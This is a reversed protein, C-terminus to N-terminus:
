RTCLLRTRPTRRAMMNRSSKSNSIRLSSSKYFILPSNCWGLLVMCPTMSSVDSTKMLHNTMSASTSTIVYTGHHLTIASTTTHGKILRKTTVMIPGMLRVINIPMGIVVMAIRRRFATTATMIIMVGKTLMTQHHTTAVLAMLPPSLRSRRSRSSTASMYTIAQAWSSSMVGKSACSLGGSSM